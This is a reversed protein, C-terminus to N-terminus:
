WLNAERIFTLHGIFVNQYRSSSNWNAVYNNSSSPIHLIKYYFLIWKM